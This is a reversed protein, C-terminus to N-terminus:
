ATGGYLPKKMKGLMVTDNSQKRLSFVSNEHRIPLPNQSNINTYKQKSSSNKSMSKPIQAVQHDINRIDEQYDLPTRESQNDVIEDDHEIIRGM